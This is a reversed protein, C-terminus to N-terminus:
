PGCLAVAWAGVNDGEHCEDLVGDEDGGTM